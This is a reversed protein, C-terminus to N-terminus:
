HLLPSETQSVYELPAAMKLILATDFRLRFSGLIELLLSSPPASPYRFQPTTAARNLISFFSYGPVGSWKGNAASIDLTVHLQNVDAGGVWSKTERAAAAAAAAGRLAGAWGSSDDDDDDFIVVVVCQPTKREEM